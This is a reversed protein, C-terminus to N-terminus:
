LIVSVKELEKECNMRVLKIFLKLRQLTKDRTDGVETTVSVRFNGSNPIRHLKHLMITYRVGHGVVSTAMAVSSTLPDVIIIIIITSASM